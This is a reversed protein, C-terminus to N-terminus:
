YPSGEIDVMKHNREVDTYVEGFEDVFEKLTTEYPLTVVVHFLRLNNEPLKNFEEPIIGTLKIKM